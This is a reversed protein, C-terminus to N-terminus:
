ENLWDQVFPRAEVRQVGRTAPWRDRRFLQQACEEELNEVRNAALALEDLLEVVIVEKAPEDFKLDIRGDPLRRERLIAIPQERVVDGLRYAHALWM